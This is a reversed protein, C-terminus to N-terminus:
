LSVSEIYNSLFYNKENKNILSAVRKVQFDFEIMLLLICKEDFARGFDKSILRVACNKINNVKLGKSM